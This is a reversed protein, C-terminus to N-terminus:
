KKCVVSTRGFLRRNCMRQPDQGVVWGIACKNLPSLRCKDFWPPVAFPDLCVDCGLQVLLQTAWGYHAQAQAWNSKKNLSGQHRKTVPVVRRKM